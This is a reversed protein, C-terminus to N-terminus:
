GTAEAARGGSRAPQEFIEDDELDDALQGQEGGRQRGESNDEAGSYERDAQREQEHQRAVALLM